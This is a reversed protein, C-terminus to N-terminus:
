IGSRKVVTEVVPQSVFADSVRGSEIKGFRMGIRDDVDGIIGARM